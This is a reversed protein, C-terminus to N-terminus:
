LDTYISLSDDHDIIDDEAGTRGVKMFTNVKSTLM